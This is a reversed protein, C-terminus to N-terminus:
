YYWRDRRVVNQQTQSYQFWISLMHLGTLLGDLLANAPTKKQVIAKIAICAFVYSVIGGM